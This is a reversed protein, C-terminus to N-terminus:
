KYDKVIKFIDIVKINKIPFYYFEYLYFLAL